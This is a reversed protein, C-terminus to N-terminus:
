PALIEFFPLPINRVVMYVVVVTAIIPALLPSPSWTLQQGNWRARMWRAGIYALFFLLPPVLINFGFATGVDGHLLAHTSRLLGCGPCYLGTVAYSFCVPYNGPSNPSVAYLYSLGACLGTVGM